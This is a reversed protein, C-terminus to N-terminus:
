VVTALEHDGESKNRSPLWHFSAPVLKYQFVLGLWASFFVLASLATNGVSEHLIFLAQPVFLAISWLFMAKPISFLLALYQFGYVDHRRETLYAYQSM